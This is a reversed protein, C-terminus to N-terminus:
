PSNGANGSKKRTGEPPSFLVLVELAETLACSHHPERAPVFIVDGPGVTVDEHAARFRGRGALIVYVEDEAHPQQPDNAGASLRYVGVSMSPNRLFEVYSRADDAIRSPHHLEL